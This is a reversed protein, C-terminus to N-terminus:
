VTEKTKKLAKIREVLTPHSYYWWVYLKPPLLESLNESNLKVLGSILADPNKTLESSFHDAQFEDKRSFYSSVPNVFEVFNGFVLSALFIGVFQVAKITNSDFGFGFAIYISKNKAILFLVFMVLFEIPIMVIFRKIIHKLKYHGLEHGLVAELEDVTLQNILTDFLVIRKSKGLGGFYANSHGSRKSADMVFIGDSKFGLNTMLATIRNKLEGDELPTFKNFMPAIVLPYLVQIILTFAFMLVTLFIWWTNPQWLLIGIGAMLLVSILVLNLILGKIQDAIWLKITMKSFGFKKEVVFERVLSFPISVIEEPISGIVFFLWACWFTNWFGNPNGTIQVIKSFLSPYFGTCILVLSLVLGCISSPIWWLYKLNEYKRINELKETDFASAAPIDKLEEPLKGKNKCRARYDIFELFHKIVFSCFLGIFFLIVFPNSYNINETMSM